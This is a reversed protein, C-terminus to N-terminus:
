KQEMVIDTQKLGLTRLLSLAQLFRELSVKRDGAIVFRAKPKERYAVEIAAKTQKWDTFETGDVAWKEDKAFIAVVVKNKQNLPKAAEAGKNPLNLDLAVQAANATLVFFVLLVFLVDVLPTLDAALGAFGDGDTSTEPVKIM